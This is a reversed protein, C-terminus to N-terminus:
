YSNTGSAPGTNGTSGTNESGSNANKETGTGFSSGSTSGNNDVASGPGPTPQGKPQATRADTPNKSENQPTLVNASGTDRRDQSRTCASASFVATTLVLLLSLKNFM